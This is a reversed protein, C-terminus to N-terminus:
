FDENEVAEVSLENDSDYEVSGQKLAPILEISEDDDSFKNVEEPKIAELVATQDEYTTGANSKKYCMHNLWIMDQRQSIRKTVPNYMCWYDCAHQSVYGIFLMTVWIDNVKDTKGICVTGAEEIVRLQNAFAPLNGQYHEIM